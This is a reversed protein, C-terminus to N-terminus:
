SHERDHEAYNAKSKRYQSVLLGLTTARKIIHDRSVRRRAKVTVALRSVRGHMRGCRKVAHQDPYIRLVGGRGGIEYAIQAGFHRLGGIAPLGVGELDAIADPEVVARWQGSIVHRRAPVLDDVRWFAHRARTLAKIDHYVLDLRGIRCSHHKM